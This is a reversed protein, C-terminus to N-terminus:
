PGDPLARRIGGRVITDCDLYLAREVPAPLVEPAFLRAMASIDFGGRIWRTPSVTRRPKALRM